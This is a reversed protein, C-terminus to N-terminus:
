SKSIKSEVAKSDEYLTDPCFDQGHPWEITGFNIKVSRFYSLNKQEQFIGKDLYPSTDFEKWENNDFLLQLRYNPLTQVSKVRPNM